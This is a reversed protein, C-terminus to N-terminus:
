KLSNVFNQHSEKGFVGKGYAYGNWYVFIDSLDKEDKWASAYVALNTGRSIPARAQQCLHAANCRALQFRATRLTELTHKRVFNMELPEDLM